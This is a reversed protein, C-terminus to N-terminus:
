SMLVNVQTDKSHSTDYQTLLVQGHSTTSVCRKLCAQLVRAALRLCIAHVGATHTTPVCRDLLYCTTVLLTDMALLELTHHMAHM